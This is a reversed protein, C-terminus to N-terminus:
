HLCSIPLLWYMMWMILVLAKWGSDMLSETDWHAVKCGFNRCIYISAKAWALCLGLRHHKGQIRPKCIQHHRKTIDKWPVDMGTVVVEGFLRELVSYGITGPEQAMLNGLAITTSETTLSLTARQMDEKITYLSGTRKVLLMPSNKTFMEYIGDFVSCVGYQVAQSLPVLNCHAQRV